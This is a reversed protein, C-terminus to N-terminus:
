VRVDQCPQIEEPEPKHGNRGMIITQTEMHEKLEQLTEDLMAIRGGMEDFADDYDIALQAPPEDLGALIVSTTYIILLAFIIVSAGFGAYLSEYTTIGTMSRAQVMVDAIWRILGGPYASMYTNATIAMSTWMLAILLKTVANNFGDGAVDYLAVENRDISVESNLRAQRKQQVTKKKLLKMIM